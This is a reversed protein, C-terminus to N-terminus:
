PKHIHTHTHTHTQPKKLHGGLVITVSLHRERWAVVVRDSHISSLVYVELYPSSTARTHACDTFTSEKGHLLCRIPLRRCGEVAADRQISTKKWGDSVMWRELSAVCKKTQGGGVTALM